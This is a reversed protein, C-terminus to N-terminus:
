APKSSSLLNGEGPNPRSEILGFYRVEIEAVVFGTAIIKTPDPEIALSNAV